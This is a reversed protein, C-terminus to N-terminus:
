MKIKLSYSVQRRCTALLLTENASLMPPSRLTQRCLSVSIGVLGCKRFLAVKWPSLINLGSCRDTKAMM